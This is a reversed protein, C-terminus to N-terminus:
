IRNLLEEGLSMTIQRNAGEPVRKKVQEEFWNLAYRKGIGKLLRGTPSKEFFHRIHRMPKKHHFHKVRDHHAEM